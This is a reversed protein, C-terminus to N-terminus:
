RLSQGFRNHFDNSFNRRDEYHEKAKDVARSQEKKEMTLKNQTMIDTRNRRMALEVQREKFAMAATSDLMGKAESEGQEQEQAANRSRAELHTEMEEKQVQRMHQKHGVDRNMTKIISGHRAEMASRRAHLRAQDREYEADASTANKTSPGRSKRLMISGRNAM